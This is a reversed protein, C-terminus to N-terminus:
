EVIDDLLIDAIVCPSALDRLKAFTAQGVLTIFLAKKHNGQAEDCEKINNSLCYFKFRQHFDEISEKNATFEWLTGHAMRM